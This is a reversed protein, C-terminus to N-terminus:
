VDTNKNSWSLDNRPVKTMKLINGGVIGSNEFVNIQERQLVRNSMTSNERGTSRMGDGTHVLEDDASGLGQHVVDVGEYLHADPLACCQQGYCHAIGM